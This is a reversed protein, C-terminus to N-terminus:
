LSHDVCIVNRTTYTTERRGLILENVSQLGGVDVARSSPDCNAAQEESEAQRTTRSEGLDLRDVTCRRVRRM